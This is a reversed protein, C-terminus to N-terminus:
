SNARMEIFDLAKKLRKLTKDKGMLRVTDDINPSIGTGTVAVRLPQGLKGMNMDFEAAVTEITQKIADNEWDALGQLSDYLKQMPELIVPRLHKKAA